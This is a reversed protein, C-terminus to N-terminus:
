LRCLKDLMNTPNKAWFVIYDVKSPTLMVRSVQNYNWPNRVLAYGEELRNLFWESYFASTDSRRSASIIM